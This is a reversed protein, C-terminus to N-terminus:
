ERVTYGMDAYGKLRKAYMRALRPVGADVYDYVTVVRKRENLRHLRGVYQQLTGRWSIPLALFLADLRIDDFGEGIYRGTAVLVREEGEPIAALQAAVERRQKAGMGGHLVVVHQVTNQLWSALQKAHEVRETLLLPSCGTQLAQLLDSIILENRAEDAALAGYVEQIGVEGAEPALRFGTTRPVVVQQFSRVGAQERSSARFRVPGCQMTIIPHHGDQRVPTATLGVVYRGKAQKLVQEFSFAPLHHVEDIIVQGYGAVSDKVEGKRGLSQIIGVDIKGTPKNKGGGLQGIATEPVGLFAALQTRWQDLLQRRHVLVLTNVKRNAILWAGIVTKGFGTAASLVGLDHRAVAAAAEQQAPDLTGQFNAEIPEGSYREDVLEVRIGQTQFVELAEELYGRPLGIYRDFDEACGIVRPKGFTSLRMAQYRYFEPNQFAALRVLRNLLAPPLGEKEIYVLNAQVIRVEAPLPGGLPLEPQRGSPPLTWPDVEDGEADTLSERVALVNGSREAEWVLREVEAPQTPRLSSLYAWQDPYPIFNGDLFLSHGDHAPGPQFPLAILNGFGGRPMTDQNPFLRDYSDLGIRPRREMARTLIASGLQRARAAPIPSAFFIWVHGGQGSRSRELAAPIGWEGCAELFASADGQWQEGDFDAALFWCTEDTLLPYVGVTKKGRLHEGLVQETLPLHERNPCGGCKVRPKGCFAKNWEYRCAPSYGSRGDKGEWRVAYVDDRGRFLNRFLTIKEQASSAGNVAASSLPASSLPTPPEPAPDLSLGLRKKLQANEERLRACEARLERNAVELDNTQEM